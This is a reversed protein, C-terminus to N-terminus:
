RRLRYLLWTRARWGDIWTARLAQSIAAIEDPTPKCEDGMIARALAAATVAFDAPSPVPIEM